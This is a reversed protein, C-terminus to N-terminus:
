SRSARATAGSCRMGAESLRAPLTSAAMAANFEANMRASLTATAGAPAFLGFTSVLNAEAHGLEALTPVAPLAAVRAVGTVALAALRGERVHRLQLPAVNSSLVEFQGGLADTIQQGGGKYPVHTVRLTAARAVRELVLHGTTGIGSTAWRVGSGRRAAELMQAWSRAQLASTGLVLVPTSMVAMLPKVGRAPDYRLEQQLPALTLPTIACFALVSGDPPSTALAQMALTGGAGPRHEVPVAIALRAGMADALARAVESSIGGPPCAVILRMRQPPWREGQAGRSTGAAAAAVIAGLMRRRVVSPMSTAFASAFRQRAAKM